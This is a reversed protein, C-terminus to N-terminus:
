GGPRASLGRIRTPMECDTLTRRCCFCRYRATVLGPRARAVTRHFREALTLPAALDDPDWRVVELGLDRLRTERRAQALVARAAVEDPPRDAITADLLYKGRGDAEGVVGLDPWLADVRGVFRGSSDTVVVQPIGHPLGWEAMVWASRSEFWSERLGDGFRLIRDAAAIGPWRRQHRRMDLLAPGTVLKTRLAADLVALADDPRLERMCDVVTRAPVLYPHGRDIVIHPPPTHGRHFQRWGDDVSTRSDHLVTMTARQPPKPPMPLGLLAAASAHSIIADPTARVAAQALGKHREWPPSAAWPTTRAYVGSFVRTLDGEDLLRDLRRGSVGATLAEARLFPQPLDSLPM